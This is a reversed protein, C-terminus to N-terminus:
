IHLLWSAFDEKIVRKLIPEDSIVLAKVLIIKEIERIREGGLSIGLKEFEAVITKVGRKGM